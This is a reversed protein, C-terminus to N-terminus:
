QMWHANAYWDMWGEDICEDYFLSGPTYKYACYRRLDRMTGTPLSPTTTHPTTTRIIPTSRDRNDDDPPDGFIMVLVILIVLLGLISGLTIATWKCIRKHIRRCKSPKTTESTM